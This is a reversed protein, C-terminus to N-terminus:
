KDSKRSLEFKAFMYMFVYIRFASAINSLILFVFVFYMAIHKNVFLYCILLLIAYSIAKSNYKFLKKKSEISLQGIISNKSASSIIFINAFYFSLFVSVVTIAYGIYDINVSNKINIIKSFYLIFFVILPVIESFYNEFNPHKELFNKMNELFKYKYKKLM